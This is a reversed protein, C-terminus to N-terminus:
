SDKRSTKWSEIPKEGDLPYSDTLGISHIPSVEGLPPPASPEIMVKESVSVIKWALPPISSITSVWFGMKAFYLIESPSKDTREGLRM